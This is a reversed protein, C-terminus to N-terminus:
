MWRSLTHRLQPATDLAHRARCPLQCNMCPAGRMSVHLPKHGRRQLLYGCAM